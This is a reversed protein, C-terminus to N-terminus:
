SGSRHLLFQHSLLLFFLLLPSITSSSAQPFSHAFDTWYTAASQTMYLSDSVVVGAGVSAMTNAMEEMMLAPPDSIGLRKCAKFLRLRFLFSRHWRTRACITNYWQGIQDGPQKDKAAKMNEAEHYGGFAKEDGAVAEGASTVLSLLNCNIYDEMEAPVVLRAHLAELASVGLKVVPSPFLDSYLALVNLWDDRLLSDTAEMTDTARHEETASMIEFRLGHYLLAERDSFHIPTNNPYFFSTGVDKHHKLLRTYFEPGTVACWADLASPPGRKKDISFLLYPTEVVPPDWEVHEKKLDLRRWGTGLEEKEAATIKPKKAAERKTAERAERALVQATTEFEFAVVEEVREKVTKYPKVRTKQTRIQPM